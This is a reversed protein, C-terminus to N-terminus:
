GRRRKTLVGAGALLFFALIGASDAARRGAASVGCGGGSSAVCRAAGVVPKECAFGDPCDDASESCSRSCFKDFGEGAVCLSGACDNPMRCPAGIDGLCAGDICIEGQACGTNMGSCAPEVTVNIAVTFTNSSKDWLVAEVKHPGLSIDSPASLEFPPTVDASSMTGDIKLEVKELSKNDSGDIAVKFGPPVSAGNAPSTISGTPPETDFPGLNDILETFSNQTTNGDCMCVSFPNAEYTGCASSQDVFAKPSYDEYSMLDARIVEHELGLLHGAEHAVTICLEARGKASQNLNGYLTVHGELIAFAIGNEEVSCVDETSAQGLVVSGPVDPVDLLAKSNGVVVEVYNQTTPPEADVIVLNFPAYYARVCDLLANWNADSLDSTTLAPVTGSNVVNSAANTRSDTAIGGAYGGGGRNVFIARKPQPGSKGLKAKTGCPGEPEPTACIGRRAVAGQTGNGFAWANTAILLSSLGLLITL